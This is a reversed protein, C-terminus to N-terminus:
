LGNIKEIIQNLNCKQNYPVVSKSKDFGSAKEKNYIEKTVEIGNWYYHYFPIGNEDLQSYDNSGYWGRGVEVIQGDKITYINDFFHDMKGGEELFINGREIYSLGYYTVRIVSLGKGDYTCVDEGLAKNGYSVILEPIDDDNIYMLMYEVGQKQSNIYDIYSSKWSTNSVNNNLDSTSELIQGTNISVLTYGHFISSPNIEFIAEFPRIDFTGDENQLGSNGTVKIQKDSINTVNIIQAYPWSGGWDGVTFNYYDGELIMNNETINYNQIDVGFIDQAVKEVTSKEVYNSMLAYKSSTYVYFGQIFKDNPIDSIKGNYSYVDDNRGMGIHFISILSEMDRKTNDDINVNSAALLIKSQANIAAKNLDTSKINEKMSIVSESNDIKSIEKKIQCGTLLSLCSLCLVIRKIKKM